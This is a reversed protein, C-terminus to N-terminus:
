VKRKKIWFHLNSRWIIFVPRGQNALNLKNFSILPDQLRPYDASISSSSLDFNVVLITILRLKLKLLFNGGDLINYRHWRVSMYKVSQQQSKLGIYAGRTFESIIVRTRLKAGNNLKSNNECAIEIWWERINDLQNWAINLRWEM